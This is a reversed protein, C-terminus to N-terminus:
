VRCMESAFISGSFFLSNLRHAISFLKLWSIPLLRAVIHDFLSDAKTM